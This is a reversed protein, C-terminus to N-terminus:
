SRRGTDAHPRDPGDGARARGLLHARRGQGRRACRRRDVPPPARGPRRGSCGAPRRPPRRRTRLHRDTPVRELSADDYGMAILDTVNFLRPDLRDAGLLPVAEDPIVFLDGGVEQMRFSGAAGEPREVDTIQSGDALTRVTVVDGTVLTVKVSSAPQARRTPQAAQSPDAQTQDALAPTQLVATATALAALTTVARTIRSRRARSSSAPNPM